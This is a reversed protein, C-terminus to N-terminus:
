ASGVFTRVAGEIVTHNGTDKSGIVALAYGQVTCRSAFLGRDLNEWDHHPAKTGSLYVAARLGEVYVERTTLGTDVIVRDGDDGSLHDGVRAVAALAM